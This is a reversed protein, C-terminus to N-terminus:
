LIGVHEFRQLVYGLFLFIIILTCINNNSPFSHGKYFNIFRVDYFLKQKAPPMNTEDQIKAKLISICEALPLTYTLTQGNLKWESKEPQVPINVKLTM